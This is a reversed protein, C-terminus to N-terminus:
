GKGLMDGDKRYPYLGVRSTVKVKDGNQIQLSEADNPHLMMTCENRGKVLRYSNHMWTNHSRLLRRGIMQFPFEEASKKETFFTTKLRELDDVFLQPAIRIKDDNTQLRSILCPKLAGLDIGHPHEKLMELSLGQDGYIGSQLMNDLVIEPTLNSEPQDTIVSILKRTIEWDYKQNDEKEFLPSSYKVTNKVSFSNFFIDYHPIELGTAAPLIIDAHRTTENLYIDVAVMFDLQDFAEALREGNPSSLVPNGAICIMAKIQGEGETLIEDAL